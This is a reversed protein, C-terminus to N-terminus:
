INQRQMFQKCKHPMGNFGGKGGTGFKEVFHTLAFEFLVHLNVVTCNFM